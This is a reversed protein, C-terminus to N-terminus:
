RGAAIQLYKEHLEAVQRGTEELSGSNDIVDDAAALRRERDVQAAVISASREATEADRAMLRARQLDEPCDVVLVRDVLADFGSELLLPVVLLLYPGSAQEALALSRTRILPHLIAELDRRSAEDAFVLKRLGQRDLQGDATLLEPGFRDIVAQLGPQGPAVVERAIDDTDIVTIGLGAFLEAVASKGSAIGGTLGIRMVRAQGDNSNMDAMKDHTKRARCHTNLSAHGALTRAAGTGM